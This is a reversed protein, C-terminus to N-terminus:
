LKLSNILGKYDCKVGEDKCCNNNYPKNLFTNLNKCDLSLIYENENENENVIIETQSELIENIKIDSCPIFNKYKENETLTNFNICTEQQYCAINTNEFNCNKIQNKFNIIEGNFKLNNSLDSFIYMKKFFFYFLKLVM